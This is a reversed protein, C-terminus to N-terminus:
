RRGKSTTIGSSKVGLRPDFEADDLYDNHSLKVPPEYDSITSRASVERKLRKEADLLSSAFDAMKNNSQIPADDGELELRQDATVLLGRNNKWRSICVPVKKLKKQESTLPKPPDRLITPPPGPPAKMNRKLRHKPPELPDIQQETMQIIRDPVEEGRQLAARAIGDQPTYRVYYKDGPKHKSLRGEQRAVISELSRKTLETNTAIDDAEPRTLAEATYSSPKTHVISQESSM